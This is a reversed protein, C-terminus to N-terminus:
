LYLNHIMSDCCLCVKADGQAWRSCGQGCSLYVESNSIVVESDHLTYRMRRTRVKTM